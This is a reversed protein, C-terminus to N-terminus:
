DRVSRAEWERGRERARVRADRASRLHRRHQAPQVRGNRRVNQAVEGREDRWLLEGRHECAHRSGQAHAQAGGSKM